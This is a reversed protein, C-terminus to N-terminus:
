ITDEKQNCNGDSTKKFDNKVIVATIEDDTRARVKYQKFSHGFM